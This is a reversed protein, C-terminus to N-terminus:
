NIMGSPFQPNYPQEEKLIIRSTDSYLILVSPFVTNCLDSMISHYIVM